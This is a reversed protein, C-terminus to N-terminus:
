FLDHQPKENNEPRYEPKVRDLKAEPKQRRADLDSKVREKANRNHDISEVLTNVIKTWFM